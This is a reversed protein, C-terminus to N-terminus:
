QHHCLDRAQTMWNATRQDSDALGGVGCIEYEAVALIISSHFVIQPRMNSINQPSKGALSITIKHHQKTDLNVKRFLVGCVRSSAYLDLTTTVGDLTVQVSGGLPDKYGMYYIASGHFTLSIAADEGYSWSGCPDTWGGWGGQVSIHYLEDLYCFTISRRRHM